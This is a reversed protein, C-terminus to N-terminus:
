PEIQHFVKEALHRPGHQALDADGRFLFEDFSDMQAEPLDVGSRDDEAQLLFHILNIQSTLQLIVM